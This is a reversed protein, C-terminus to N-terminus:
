IIFNRVRNMAPANNGWLGDDGLNTAWANVLDDDLSDPEAPLETTTEYILESIGTAVVADSMGTSASINHRNRYIDILKASNCYNLCPLTLYIGSFHCVSIARNLLFNM